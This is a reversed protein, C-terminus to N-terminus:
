ITIGLRRILWKSKNAPSEAIIEATVVDISRSTQKFPIGLRQEHIVIESFEGSLSDTQGYGAYSLM